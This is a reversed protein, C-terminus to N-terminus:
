AGCGGYGTGKVAELAAQVKVFQGEYPLSKITQILEYESEMSIGSM